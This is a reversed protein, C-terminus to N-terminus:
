GTGEGFPGMRELSALEKRLFAKTSELKQEFKEEGGWHEQYNELAEMLRKAIILRPLPDTRSLPRLATFIYGHM